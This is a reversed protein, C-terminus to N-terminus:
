DAAMKRQLYNLRVTAYTCFTSDLKKNSVSLFSQHRTTTLTKAPLTQVCQEESLWFGAWWCRSVRSFHSWLDAAARLTEWWCWVFCISPAANLLSAAAKSKGKWLSGFSVNHFGKFFTVLSNIESTIILFQGYQGSVFLLFPFSMTDLRGSHQLTSLRPAPWVLLSSVVWSFFIYGLWLVENKRKKNEAWLGHCWLYWFPSDTWSIVPCLTEKFLPKKVERYLSEWCSNTHLLPSFVPELQLHPWLHGELTGTSKGSWHFGAIQSSAVNQVSCVTYYNVSSWQGTWLWEEKVIELTPLYDVVFYDVVTIWSGKSYCLFIVLQPM